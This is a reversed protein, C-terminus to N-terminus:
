ELARVAFNTPSAMDVFYTLRWLELSGEPLSKRLEYDVILIPRRRVHEAGSVTSFASVTEFEELSPYLTLRRDYRRFDVGRRTADFTVARLCIARYREDVNWTETRTQVLHRRLFLTTVCLVVLSVDKLLSLVRTALSVNSSCRSEQEM